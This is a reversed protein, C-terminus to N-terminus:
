ETGISNLPHKDNLILLEEGDIMADIVEWNIGISADSTLYVQDLIRKAQKKNITIGKYDGREIIDDVMWIDAIKDSFYKNLVKDFRPKRKSVMAKLSEKNLLSTLTKINHKEMYYNREKSKGGIRADRDGKTLM